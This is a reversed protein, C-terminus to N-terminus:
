DWPCAATRRYKDALIRQLRARNYRQVLIFPVNILGGYLIMLWGVLWHTWLFFTLALAWTLWHGLEARSTEQAFRELYLPDRSALRRKSFGGPLFGGAEPLHDKWARIRLREYIRGDEEWAWSQSVVPLRRIWLLPLRQVLYGAGLHFGVWLAACLAIFYPLAM